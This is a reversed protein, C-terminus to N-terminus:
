DKLLNRALFLVNAPREALRRMFYPYWRRGYPIYIRVNYGEQVLKLQLDRRIGYLMQFEFRGSSINQRHAYERAAEIMREDHTAIAHYSKSSLLMKMLNVFNDDVEKKKRFAVSEPELYAGKVLRISIGRELLRRMDQESRYLYSQIVAGTNGLKEYADEVIDLTNQTYPSDEMDVRVFIGKGLACEAIQLLNRRSLEPDLTLGLQTLKVSINCRMQEAFIRDLIGAIERCANAADEKTLTNEGLLDLTGTMNQQNVRQVAKVADDLSEGAVFRLAAKRLIGFKMAFNKFGEQKALFLFIARM